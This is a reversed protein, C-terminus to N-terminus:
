RSSIFAGYADMFASFDGLNERLIRVVTEDDMKFYFHVLRNRFRAMQILRELLEDSFAGKEALVRFADAYDEASRLGLRSIAHNSLDIAAEIASEPAFRGGM